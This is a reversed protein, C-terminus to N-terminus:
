LNTLFPRNKNQNKITVTNRKKENMKVELNEKM